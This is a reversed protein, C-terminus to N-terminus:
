AARREGQWQRAFSSRWSVSNPAPLANESKEASLSAKARRHLGNRRADRESLYLYTSCIHTRAKHITYHWRSDSLSGLQDAWISNTSLTYCSYGMACDRRRNRGVTARESDRDRLFTAEEATRERSCICTRGQPSHPPLVAIGAHAFVLPPLHMPHRSKPRVPRGSLLSILRAFGSKWCVLLENSVVGGRAPRERGDGRGPMWEKGDRAAPLSAGPRCGPGGRHRLLPGRSVTVQGPRTRPRSGRAAAHRSGAQPGRARAEVRRCRTAPSVPLPVGRGTSGAPSSVRCGDLGDPARVACDHVTRSRHRVSQDCGGAQVGARAGDPRALLHWRGLM